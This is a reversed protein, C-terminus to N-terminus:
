AAVLKKFKSTVDECFTTDKAMRCLVEWQLSFEVKADASSASTKNNAPVVDYGEYLALAAQTATCQTADLGGGGIKPAFDAQKAKEKEDEDAAKSDDSAHNVVWLAM